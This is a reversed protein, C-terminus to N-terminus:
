KNIVEMMEDFSSYLSQLKAIEQTVFAVRWVIIIVQSNSNKGMPQTMRWNVREPGAKETVKWAKGVKSQYGLFALVKNLQQGAHGKQSWGLIDREIKSVEAFVNTSDVAQLLPSANYVARLDIDYKRDIMSVAENLVIHKPAEFLSCLDLLDELEIKAKQLPRLSDFNDIVEYKKVVSHIERLVLFGEAIIDQFRDANKSNSKMIIRLAAKENLLFLPQKKNQSNVYTTEIISKSSDRFKPLGLEEQDKIFKRITALLHDPRVDLERAISLSDIYADDGRVQFELGLLVRTTEEDFGASTVKDKYQTLNM